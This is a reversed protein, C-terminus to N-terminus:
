LSILALSIQNSAQATSGNVVVIRLYRETIPREFIILGAATTTVTGAASATWITGDHSSELRVTATTSATALNVRARVTNWIHNDGLDLTPSTFTASAGLATTSLLFSLNSKADMTGGEGQTAVTQLFFGTQATAGNIFLLRYYRLHLPWEFTRYSGDSPIPVRRTELWTSGNTSEQLVLTGPNVGANHMVMPRLLTRRAAVTTGMDRSAGTYTASAALNTTSEAQEVLNPNATVSGSVTQTSINNSQSAASFELTITASGSTYASMRVRFYRAGVDCAWMGPGTATTVPGGMTSPVMAKQGWNVGDNSVEFTVTGVFTGSIQLSVSQFNLADFQLTANLAGLSGTVEQGATALAIKNIAM